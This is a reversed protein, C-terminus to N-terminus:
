HFDELRKVNKVKMKEIDISNRDVIEKASFAYDCCVRAPELMNNNARMNMGPCIGCNSIAPCEPCRALHHIKLNRFNELDESNTWIDELSRNMLNGLNLALISHFCPSVDGLPSISCQNTGAHCIVQNVDKKKHPIEGPNESFFKLINDKSIRLDYIDRSGDNREFIPFLYYHKVGLQGALESMKKYDQFNIKM